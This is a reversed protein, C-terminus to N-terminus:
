GVCAYKYVFHNVLVIVKPEPLEAYSWLSTWFEIVCHADNYDNIMDKYDLALLQCHWCPLYNGHATVLDSQAELVRQRFADQYTTWGTNQVSGENETFSIVCKDHKNLLFSLLVSLIFLGFRLSNISTNNLEISCITNYKHVDKDRDHFRMLSSLKIKKENM